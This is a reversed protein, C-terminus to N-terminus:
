KGLFAVTSKVENCVPLRRAEILALALSPLKSGEVRGM